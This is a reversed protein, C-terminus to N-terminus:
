SLSLTVSKKFDYIRFRICKVYTSILYFTKQELFTEFTTKAGIYIKRCNRKIDALIYM